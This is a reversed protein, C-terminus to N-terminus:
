NCWFSMHQINQVTTRKARSRIGEQQVAPFAQKDWLPRYFGEFPSLTAKPRM